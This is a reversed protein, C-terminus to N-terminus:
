VEKGSHSKAFPVFTLLEPWVLQGSLFPFGSNASLGLKSMDRQFGVAEERLIDEESFFM